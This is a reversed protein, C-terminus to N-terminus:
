CVRGLVELGSNGQELTVDSGVEEVTQYGSLRLLYLLAEELLMGRVQSITVM